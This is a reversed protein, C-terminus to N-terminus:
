SEGTRLIAVPERCGCTALSSDKSWGASRIEQKQLWNTVCEERSEKGTLAIKDAVSCGGSDRRYRYRRRKRLMGTFLRRTLHSEALLLWYYRAHKILRGGTKMLRQQL